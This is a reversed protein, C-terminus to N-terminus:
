FTVKDDANEKTESIPSKRRVSIINKPLKLGSIVTKAPEMIVKGGSYALGFQPLRDNVV